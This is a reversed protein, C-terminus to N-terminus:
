PAIVHFYFRFNLGALAAIDIGVTSRLLPAIVHAHFCSNLGSLSATEIGVASWLSCVVHFYFGFNFCAFSTM